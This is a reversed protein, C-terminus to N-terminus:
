RGYNVWLLGQSRAYVLKWACIRSRQVKINRRDLNQHPISDSCDWLLSRMSPVSCTAICPRTATGGPRCHRAM